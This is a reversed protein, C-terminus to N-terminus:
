KKGMKKGFESMRQSFNGMQGGFGGMNKYFDELNGLNGMNETFNAPNQM